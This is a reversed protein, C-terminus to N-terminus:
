IADLEDLVVVMGDRIERFLAGLQKSTGGVFISLVEPISVVYAEVGLANAVAAATSTKGNGPPGHFLLRSRADLGREALHTRYELEEVIEELCAQIAGPLLLDEFSVQPIPRLASNTGLYEAEKASSSSQRYGQGLQRPPPATSTFGS